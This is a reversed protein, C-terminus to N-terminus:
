VFRDSIAKWWRRGTFALTDLLDHSCVECLGYKEDARARLMPDRSIDGLTGLPDRMGKESILFNRVIVDSWFLNLGDSCPDHVRRTWLPDMGDDDDDADVIVRRRMCTDVAQSSRIPCEAFRVVLGALVSRLKSCEVIETASLRCPNVTRGAPRQAGSAANGALFERRHRRRKQSLAVNDFDDEVASSKDEVWPLRVLEYYISPLLEPVDCITAAKLAVIPNPFRLDAERVQGEGQGQGEARKTLM